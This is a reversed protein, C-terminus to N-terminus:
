AAEPANSRIRSQEWQVLVDEAWYRRREIVMTPQPFNLEANRLWRWLSMDTIGYRTLVQGATLYRKTSPAKVDHTDDATRETPM